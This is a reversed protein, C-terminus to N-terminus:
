RDVTDGRRGERCHSPSSQEGGVELENWSDRLFLLQIEEEQPVVM